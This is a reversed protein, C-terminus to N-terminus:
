VANSAFTRKFCAAVVPQVDSIAIVQGANESLNTVGFEQIGCPVITAFHDLNVQCNIAMGHFSVWRRVKVGIATFKKDRIWAGTHPPFRRASIGFESATDIAIQELERLWRHIDRNVWALPFLPYVVLQGPGHYTVDGGRDTRIVEIGAAALKEASQLLNEPHFNAGLTLVPHHETFVLTPTRDGSIIDDVYARQREWADAYSTRGWNEIAFPPNL